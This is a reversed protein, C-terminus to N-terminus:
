GAVNIIHISDCSSPGENKRNEDESERRPVLRAKPCILVQIKPDPGNRKSVPIYLESIGFTMSIKRAGTTSEGDERLAIRSFQPPKRVFNM